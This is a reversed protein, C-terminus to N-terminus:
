SFVVEGGLVTKLVRAEFVEDIDVTMIDRDLVVFDAFKGKKISGKENEEFAAYAAWITMGKIAERRTLADQIQFGAERFGKTDKRAVAAYFTLFPNVQEIPFDTGLPLKGHLDLLKKYAYAGKIRDKGLWKEAWYMDSTCHTPQVSPLVTEYYKFDPEDVIQAHEVRWRRDKTIKLDDVFTKLVLHNAQDGIAHVNLQFASDKIRKGFKQLTEVSTVLVGKNDTNEYPTKMLAGKSGLAGDMYIKFAGVNIKETKIKGNKLYYDLSSDTAYVMAYIRMKLENATQMEQMLEVVDQKLDADHVSTLGYSFCEKQADKLAKQLLSKSAKPMVDNVLHMANDILIGTLNGFVKEIEGGEVETEETIGALKLAATNALMAHGDIRNVAVPIEPFLKDLAIKTPFSKTDWITQNWGRGTIFSTNHEAQFAQIRDLMEEESQTGVLNVQQMTMGLGYFHCHADIFGPFVAKGKANIIENADYNEAIFENTGVAVFKGDKIAFSEFVDFNKNVSYVVGNKLVLDVKTKM